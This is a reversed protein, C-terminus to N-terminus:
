VRVGVMWVGARKISPRPFREYKGELAGCYGCWSGTGASVCGVSADTLKDDIGKDMSKANAQGRAEPPSLPCPFTRIPSVLM